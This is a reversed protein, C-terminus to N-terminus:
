TGDTLQLHCHRTSIDRHHSDTAPIRAFPSGNRLGPPFIAFDTNPGAILCHKDEQIRLTQFRFASGTKRTRFSMQQFRLGPTVSGQYLQHPGAPALGPARGPGM